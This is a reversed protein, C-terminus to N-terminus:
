ILALTSGNKVKCVKLSYDYNYVEKTECNILSLNKSIPFEGDTLDHITQNLLIIIEAVTKNIPLFVNYTESLTPVVLNVLVKNNNM